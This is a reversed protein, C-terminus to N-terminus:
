LIHWDPYKKGKRAYVGSPAGQQQDPGAEYIRDITDGPGQKEDIM